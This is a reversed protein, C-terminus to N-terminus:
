VTTVKFLQGIHSRRKKKRRVKAYKCGNYPILSTDLVARYLLQNTFLKGFFAKRISNIKKLTRAQNPYRFVNLSFGKLLVLWQRATVLSLKIILSSVIDAFLSVSSPSFKENELKRLFGRITIFIVIPSDSIPRVPKLQSGKRWRLRYMNLRYYKEKKNQVTVANNIIKNRTGNDFLNEFISKLQNICIFVFINKKSFKVTLLDDINFVTSLM